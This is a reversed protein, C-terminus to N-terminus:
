TFACLAEDITLMPFCRLGSAPNCNAIAPRTPTAEYRTWAARQRAFQAPTPNSLPAPHLGHWHTPEDDRLDVGFLLVLVAGRAEALCAAHLASHGGERLVPRFFTAGEVRQDECVVREGAFDAADPHEAWWAADAAFLIDAWPALRFANNVAITRVHAERVREVVEPTLSPGGALIAFINLPAM